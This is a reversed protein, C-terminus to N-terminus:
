ANMSRIFVINSSSSILCHHFITTRQIFSFINLLCKMHLHLRTKKLERAYRRNSSASGMLVQSNIVLGMFSMLQHIDGLAYPMIYNTGNTAKLTYLNINANM